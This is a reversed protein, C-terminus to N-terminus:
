IRIFTCLLSGNLYQNDQETKTRTRKILQHSLHMQIQFCDLNETNIGVQQFIAEESGESVNAYWAYELGKIGKKSCEKILNDLGRAKLREDRLRIFREQFFLDM